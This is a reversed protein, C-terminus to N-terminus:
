NALEAYKRLSELYGVFTASPKLGKTTSGQYGDLANAGTARQEFLLVYVDCRTRSLPHLAAVIDEIRTACLTYERGKAKGSEIRVFCRFRAVPLATNLMSQIIAIAVKDQQFRQLSPDDQDLSEPDICTSEMTEDAMKILRTLAEVAQM